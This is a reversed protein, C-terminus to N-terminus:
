QKDDKEGEMRIRWNSPFIVDDINKVDKKRVLIYRGSKGKRQVEVLDFRELFEVAEKCQNLDFGKGKKLLSSLFVFEDNPLLEYIKLVTKTNM